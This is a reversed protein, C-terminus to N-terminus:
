VVVNYYVIFDFGVCSNAAIRLDFRFVISPAIVSTHHAQEIAELGHNPIAARKLEPDHRFVTLYM